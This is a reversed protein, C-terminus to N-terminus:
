FFSSNFEFIQFCHKEYLILYIFSKLVLIFFLDIFINCILCIVDINTLCFGDMEM